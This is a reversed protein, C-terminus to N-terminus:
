FLTNACRGVSALELSGHMFQTKRRESLRVKRPALGQGRMVKRMITGWQISEISQEAKPHKRTYRSTDKV